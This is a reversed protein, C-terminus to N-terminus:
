GHRFFRMGSGTLLNMMNSFILLAASLSAVFTLTDRRTEQDPQPSDAEPYCARDTAQQGQRCLGLRGLAVTQHMAGGVAATEELSRADDAARRIAVVLAEARHASLVTLKNAIIVQDTGRM